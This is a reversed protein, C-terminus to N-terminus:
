AATDTITGYSCLRQYDPSSKELNHGRALHRSIREMLHENFARRKLSAMSFRLSGSVGNSQSASGEYRAELKAFTLTSMTANFHFDLKAQSRAQSDGLGTYQKADRFVLEVQFRAKYYRYISLASLDTDTSFLVAKRRGLCDFVGVVRLNRQWQVHNLVGHYLQAGDETELREFRSLDDWLVKGDYTRPRGPGPHKPGQYLYRLNADLRLKGIQELGLNCLGDLFARKSYFGDTIVHRLHSLDHASVVRRVQELYSKMRTGPTETTPDSPPTQEVSLAYACNDTIDLWALLSIELGRQARGQTGNWFRELGYTHKGSKPIFSADLVLAQEHESPITRSLAAKNLAVFDFGRDYGRALTREHYSSYRSLNRFTAQGPCMLLLGLLHAVFKRQPKNTQPLTALISHLLRM